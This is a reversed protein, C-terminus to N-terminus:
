NGSGIYNNLNGFDFGKISEASMPIISLVTSNRLDIEVRITKLSEAVGSQVEPVSGQFKVPLDIKTPVNNFAVTPGGEVALVFSLGAKTDNARLPLIQSITYKGIQSKVDAFAPMSEMVQIARDITPQDINTPNTPPQTAPVQPDVKPDAIKVPVLKVGDPLKPGEQDSLANGIVPTIALVAIGAGALWKWRQM